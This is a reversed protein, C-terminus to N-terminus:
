VEVRHGMEGLGKLPEYVDNFPRAGPEGILLKFNDRVIAAQKFVPDLELIVDKRDSVV